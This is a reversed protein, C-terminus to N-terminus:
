RRAARWIRWQRGLPSLDGVDRLPTAARRDLRALRPGVLALPLLAPRLDKPLDAIVKDAAALHERARDRLVALAPVLGPPTQGNMLAGRNVDHGAILDVPLFAQARAPERALRRLMTVITMAVGGHGSADVALSARIPDLALASLQLIAGATEGAYGELTTMDPIPDDYLDAVRASLYADITREPLHRDRISARLATAVPHGGPDTALADRWWQIRIEGLTPDSVADRIRAIEIDFAHLAFLHRRDHAPAFLDCLYRDRDHTRVLDACHADVDM